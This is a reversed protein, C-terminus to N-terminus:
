KSCTRGLRTPARCGGRELSCCRVTQSSCGVLWIWGGDNRCTLNEQHLRVWKHGVGGTAAEWGRLASHKDWWACVAFSLHNM